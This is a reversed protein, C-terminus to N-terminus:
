LAYRAARRSLAAAQAQQRQVDYQRRYDTEDQAKQSRFQQDTQALQSQRSNLGRLLDNTAEGFGSSQLMGRSAYNENLARRQSGAQTNQDNWDWGDGQKYGLQRLQDQYQQGFQTSRLQSNSMQNDLAAQLAAVQANYWADEEAFNQGIPPANGAIIQSAASYAPAAVTGGGGGANAPQRQVPPTVPAPPPAVPAPAPKLWSASYAQRQAGTTGQMTPPAMPAPAKKVPPTAFSSPRWNAPPAPAKKVPPAVARGGFRSRPM